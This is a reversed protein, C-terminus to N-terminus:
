HALAESLIAPTVSPDIRLRPLLFPDSLDTAVGIQTTTASTFGAEKVLQVTDPTHQGSPYCFATVPAGIEQELTAKSDFIEHRQQAVSLKALDPHDVTHAGIEFGATHLEQIQQWSMYPGGIKGSIIYLTAKWGYKQLAPYATTYFDEYGDDFTLVVTKPGGKHAMLDAMTIVSYGADHIAALQEAFLTANVSLRFGLPDQKPDVDRIYHYMLIKAQEGKVAPATTRQRLASAADGGFSVVPIIAPTATPVPLPHTPDGLLDPGTFPLAKQSIQASSDHHGIQLTHWGHWAFGIVVLTYALIPWFFPTPKRSFMSAEYLGLNMVKVLNNSQNKIVDYVIM